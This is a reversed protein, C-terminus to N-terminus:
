KASEITGISRNNNVFTAKAVRQIDERTVANIKDLGTFLERWDGMLGENSALAGALGGNSNLSRILNAKARTKVAQLEEATVLENKLRDIEAEVTALCEDNSKGQAPFAFFLFLNPYKNGPFGSFGGAQIALKKEKVLSKYLRSSRGASLIDGIADYVADDPDSVSGKKYGVIIVPQSQERLVVRREGNQPPEVTRVPDSKKGAPIRAFYVEALRKVEKVDVDGVIAITMNQPVYYKKFFETAETKTIGKLDSMHGVVPDKYPHSKYAVSLVEEIMKGVPNSETRMRREEMVVNKEKYFDRIVPDYFRASELSFWLELKNSPLSFYYQTEDSSTSANLGVGGNQEIARGFEESDNQDSAAVEAKDFAVRLAALKTSDPHTKMQEARWAEWAKDLADLLPKEKKFSKTGLETTGKFALHEFIHAIGTIARSENVAGIAVYTHFSVIPADHRPLVIFKLGNKLTFESVQKQIEKFGDQRAFLFGLSLLACLLPLTLRQKM